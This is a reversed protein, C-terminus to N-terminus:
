STSGGKRQQDEKSRRKRKKQRRKHAYKRSRSKSRSGGSRSTCDTSISEEESSAYRHEESSSVDGSESGSSSSSCRRKRKSRKSKKHKRSSKKKSRHRNERSSRHKKKKRRRRYREDDERDNSEMKYLEEEDESSPEALLEYKSFGKSDSNRAAVGKLKSTDGSLFAQEAMADLYAKEARAEGGKSAGHAKQQMETSGLQKHTLKKNADKGKSGGGERGIRRMVQNLYKRANSGVSSDEGMADESTVEVARALLDAAEEDRGGLNACLAGLAVLLEPHSPVLDLGDRYCQEAKKYERASAETVSHMEDQVAQAKRAHGVGQQLQSKAWAANQSLRLDLYSYKPISDYRRRKRGASLASSQGDPTSIIAWPVHSLMVGDEGNREEYSKIITPECLQALLFPGLDNGVNNRASGDDDPQRGVGSASRDM